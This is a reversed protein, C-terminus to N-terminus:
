VLLKGEKILSKLQYESEICDNTMRLFERSKKVKQTFSVNEFGFYLQCVSEFPQFTGLLKKPGSGTRRLLFFLSLFLHDIFCVVKMFICWTESLRNPCNWWLCSWDVMVVIFFFPPVICGINWNKWARLWNKNEWCFLKKKHKYNKFVQCKICFIVWFSSFCSQSVNRM